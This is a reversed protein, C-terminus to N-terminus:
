SININAIALRVSLRATIPRVHNLDAAPEWAFIEWSQMQLNTM